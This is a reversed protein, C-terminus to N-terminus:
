EANGRASCHFTCHFTLGQRWSQESSSVGASACSHVFRLERAIKTGARIM